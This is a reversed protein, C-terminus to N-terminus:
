GLVPDVEIQVTVLDDGVQHSRAWGFCSRGVRDITVVYRDRM